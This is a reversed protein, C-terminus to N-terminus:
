ESDLFSTDWKKICECREAAVILIARGMQVHTCMLFMQSAIHVTHWALQYVTISREFSQPAKIKRTLCELHSPSGSWSFSLMVIRWFMLLWKGTLMTYCRWLSSEEAVHNYSGWTKWFVDGHFRVNLFSDFDNWNENWIYLKLYLLQWIM